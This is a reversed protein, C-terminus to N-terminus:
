SVKASRSCPRPPWRRCTTSASPWAPWWRSVDRRAPSLRTGREGIADRLKRALWGIMADGCAEGYAENYAGMGHLACLYLAVGFGHGSTLERELDARLREIGPLGSVPDM